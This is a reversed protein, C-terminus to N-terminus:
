FFFTVLLAIDIAVTFLISLITGAIFLVPGMKQLIEKNSIFKTCTIELIWGLTYFLNASIAFILVPPTVNITDPISIEGLSVALIITILGAVLMILNYFARRREWWRIIERNSRHESEATFIKKLLTNM